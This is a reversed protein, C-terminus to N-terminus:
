AKRRVLTLAAIGAFVLLLSAPEPVQSGNLPSLPYQFGSDSIMSTVPLPNGNADTVLLSTVEATHSLDLTAAYNYGDPFNQDYLAISSALRVDLKVPHGFTMPVLWTFTEDPTSPSWGWYSNDVGIAVGTDGYGVPDETFSGDVEIQVKLYRANGSGAFQLYDSFESSAYTPTTFGIVPDDFSAAPYNTLTVSSSNGLSGYAAWASADGQMTSLGGLGLDYSFFHDVTASDTGTAGVYDSVHLVSPVLYVSTALLSGATALPAFLAIAVVLVAFRM